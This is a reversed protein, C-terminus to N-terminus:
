NSGIYVTTEHKMLSSPISGSIMSSPTNKLLQVDYVSEKTFDFVTVYSLKRISSVNRASPIKLKLENKNTCKLTLM